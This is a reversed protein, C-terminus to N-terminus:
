RRPEAHEAKRALEEAYRQRGKEAADPDDWPQPEFPPTQGWGWLPVPAHEVVEAAPQSNIVAIRTGWELYALFTSRFGPDAPLGVEDAVDAM